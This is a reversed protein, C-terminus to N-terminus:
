NIDIISFLGQQRELAVPVDLVQHSDHVDLVPVALVPVDLVPVDLSLSSLSMWFRSLSMWFLSM